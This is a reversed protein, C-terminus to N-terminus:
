RPLRYVRAATDYFLDAREKPSFDKAIRKFANWIVTYSYSIRDVPFNSEFMCRKTGFKEICWNFYPAMAKALEASGPPKSQEHWRFGTIPM